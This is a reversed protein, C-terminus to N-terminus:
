NIDLLEKVKEPDLRLREYQARVFDLAESSYTREGGQAHCSEALELAMRLAAYHPTPIGAAICLAALRRRDTSYLLKRVKRLEIGSMVSLAMELSAIDGERLFGLVEDPGLENAALRERLHRELRREGHEHAVTSISVRDRIAQIIRHAEERTMRRTRVLDWALREGVLSVLQDVLEYPLEPRRVLRETVDRCDRFDELIRKLTRKSLEARRNEVVRAVVPAHGTDVLADCLAEGLRERGAIALAYQLSHTRVIDILEEDSLVPSNELIPRAIEIEDRALRSAVDAPVNESTALQEALAKRVERAVDRVLLLLVARALEGSEGTAFEDFQAGFKRAIDSRVAPSRDRALREVDALGLRQERAAQGAEILAAKRRSM